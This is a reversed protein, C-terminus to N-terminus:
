KKKAAATRARHKMLAAMKGRPKRGERNIFFPSKKKAVKKAAPKDVNKAAPKPTAATTTKSPKAAAAQRQSHPTVRSSNRPSKPKSAQTEAAKKRASTATVRNNNRTPVPKSKSELFKLGEYTASAAALPITARGLLRGGAKLLKGAKAKKAGKRVADTLNVVRKTSPATAPKNTVGSRRARKKAPAKKKAADSAAVKEAFESMPKGSSYRKRRSGAMKTSEKKQNLHHNKPAV